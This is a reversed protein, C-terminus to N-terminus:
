TGAFSTKILNLLLTNHGRVKVIFLTKQLEADCCRASASNLLAYIQEPVGDRNSHQSGQM